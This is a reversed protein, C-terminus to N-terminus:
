VKFGYIGVFGTFPALLVWWKSFGECSSYDLSMTDGQLVGRYLGLHLGVVWICGIYGRYLGGIIGVTEMKKEM